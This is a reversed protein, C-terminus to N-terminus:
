LRYTPCVRSCSHMELEVYCEADCLEQGDYNGHLPNLCEDDHSQEEECRECEGNWSDEALVWEFATCNNALVAFTLWKQAILVGLSESM